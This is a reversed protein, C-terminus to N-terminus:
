QSKKLDRSGCGTKWALMEARQHLWQKQIYVQTPVGQATQVATEQASGWVPQINRLASGPLIKALKDTARLCLTIM